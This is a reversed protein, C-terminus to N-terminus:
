CLKSGWQVAECEQQWAKGAMIFQLGRSTLSSNLNEIKVYWYCSICIYGVCIGEFDTCMHTGILTNMYVRLYTNMLIHFVFVLLHHRRQNVGVKSKSAHVRVLNHTWQNMEMSWSAWPDTEVDEASLKIWVAMGWHKCQNQPDSSLDEHKFLLCKVQQIIKRTGRINGTVEPITTIHLLTSTGQLNNSCQKM